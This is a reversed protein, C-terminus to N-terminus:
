KDDTWFDPHDDELENAYKEIKLLFEKDTWTFPDTQSGKSRLISFLHRAITVTPYLVVVRDIKTLIANRVQTNEKLDNISSKEGLYKKNIEM